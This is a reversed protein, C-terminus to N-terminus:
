VCSRRRDNRVFPSLKNRIEEDRSDYRLYLPKSFDLSFVGLLSKANVRDNKDSGLDFDADYRSVVNVFNVIQEASDFKVLVQQMNMMDKRINMPQKEIGVRENRYLVPERM